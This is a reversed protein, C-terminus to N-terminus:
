KILYPRVINTWLRYGEDSLHLGDEIFLEQKPTGESNIMLSYIDVFWVRPNEHLYAQILINAQLMESWLNWRAISPKISIYIVKTEPLEAKIMGYLTCFDGFVKEASKGAAIDNDGSYIVIKAPKYKSIARNFNEILDEIESGGFGRNIINLNSFDNKPHKWMRISSSGTFLVIKGSPISLNSDLREFENFENEFRNVYQSYSSIYVTLLIFVFLFRILPHHNNM